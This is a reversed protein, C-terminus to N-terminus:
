GLRREKNIVEQGFHFSLGVCALVWAHYSSWKLGTTLDCIANTFEDSCDACIVSAKYDKELSKWTYLICILSCPFLPWINVDLKQFGVIEVTVIVFCLYIWTWTTKEDDYIQNNPLVEEKSSEIIVSLGMPSLSKQGLSLITGIRDFFSVLCFSYTVLMM